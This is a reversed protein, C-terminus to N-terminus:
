QGNRQQTQELMIKQSHSPLDLYTPSTPEVNTDMLPIM